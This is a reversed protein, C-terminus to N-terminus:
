PSDSNCLNPRDCRDAHTATLRVRRYRSQIQQNSTCKSTTWSDYRRLNVVLQPIGLFEEDVGVKTLTAVGILPVVSVVVAARASIIM